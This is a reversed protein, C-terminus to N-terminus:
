RGGGPDRAVERAFQDHERIYDSEDFEASALTLCVANTSFNELRRWTMRPVLLGLYSRNLPMVREGDGADLRVDFSGSLAILFEDLTRNAHGGRAEGGPVDYIWYARRITFPVHRMGEVFSLNGRVDEVRPLRIIQVAASGTM